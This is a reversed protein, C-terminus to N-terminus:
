LDATDDLEGDCAPAAFFWAGEQALDDDGRQAEVFALQRYRIRRSATSGASFLLTDSGFAGNSGTKVSISRGGASDQSKKFPPDQTQGADDRTWAIAGGSVTGNWYWRDGTSPSQHIERVGAATAKVFRM